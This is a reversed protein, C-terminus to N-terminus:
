ILVGGSLPGPGVPGTGVGVTAQILQIECLKALKQSQCQRRHDMIAPGLKLLLGAQVQSYQQQSCIFVLLVQVLLERSPKWSFM